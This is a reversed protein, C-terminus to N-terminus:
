VPKLSSAPINAATTDLPGKMKLLDGIKSTLADARHYMTLQVPVGATLELIFRETRKEDSGLFVAINTNTGALPEFTYTGSHQPRLKGEYVITVDARPTGTTTLVV